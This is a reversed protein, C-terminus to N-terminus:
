ATSAKTQSAEKPKTYSLSCKAMTPSSRSISDTLYFDSVVETFPGTAKGSGGAKKKDGLLTEMAALGLGSVNSKEVVGYRTLNPAIESMRERLAYVDDYLLTSGAMESLARIITWDERASGPPSVAARTMQARGETNVYTASKETYACGPLIVDAFNAGVDGHHGQYVVFADSPLSSESLQDAELLYVFKSDKLDGTAPTPVFGVDM